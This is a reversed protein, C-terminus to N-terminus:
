FVFWWRSFLALHLAFLAGAVPLWVRERSPREVAMALGLLVGPVVLAFRPTSLLPRSPFPQVLWLLLNAAAHAVLPWERRRALAVVGGVAAIVVLLDLLQYGSFGAGLDELAFRVAWVVSDWPAALDRQWASQAHVVALPDDWRAWGYVGLAALAAGAGAAPVLREVLWRVTSPPREVATGRVVGLLLPVVLLAGVPRTLTAALTLLAALWPRRRAALVLGWVATALFLAEAYPAVLFFATPFVVTVLVTRRGLGDADPAADPAAGVGGVGGVGVEGGVRVGGGVGVLGALRQLGALAVVCALLSVLQAALVLRGGLLAGLGAVLAPYGPFFAAAQPATTTSPYGDAAIALYWLADARVLGSGLLEGGSADVPPASWGGFGASPAVDVAERAPITGAAVVVVVMSALWLAATALLARRWVTPVRHWRARLPALSSATM